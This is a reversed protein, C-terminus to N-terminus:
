QFCNICQQLSIFGGSNMVGILYGIPVAWFLARIDASSVRTKRHSLHIVFAVNAEAKAKSKLKFGGKKKSGSFDFNVLKLGDSSNIVFLLLTMTPLYATIM